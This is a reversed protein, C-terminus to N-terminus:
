ENEEKIISPLELMSDIIYDPELEKLEEMPFTSYSVACTSCGANKGCLIDYTSDGVMLAEEPKVGLLGCAKIAPEPDPKHKETDEPTIIVDMYEYLGMLKLGRDTMVRRKSTVIALKIGYDKLRQLAEAVGDYSEALEDHNADNFERYLSILLEKNEPDYVELSNSLPQGFLKIIEADEVEQGFHRQFAYKFSRLILNNTNILTGDLDFLVAKIMRYVKKREGSKEKTEKTEKTGPVGLTGYKPVKPTGPVTRRVLVV